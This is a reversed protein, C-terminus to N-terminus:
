KCSEDVKIWTGFPGKKFGPPPNSEGSTLYSTPDIVDLTDAIADLSAAMSATVAAARGWFTHGRLKGNQFHSLGRSGDPLSHGGKHKLLDKKGNAAIEIQRATQRNDALVNQGAKRARIAQERTLRSVKKIGTSTLRVLYGVSSKLGEPDIFNLPNGGVYAYTNM